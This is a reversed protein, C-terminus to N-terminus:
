STASVEVEYCVVSVLSCVDIYGSLNSGVVGALLHSCVWVNPLATCINVTFQFLENTSMIKSPLKGCGINNLSEEDVVFGELRDQLSSLSPIILTDNHM